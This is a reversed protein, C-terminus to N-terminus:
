HQHGHEVASQTARLDCLGAGFEVSGRRVVATHYDRRELLDLVAERVEIMVIVGGFLLFGGDVSRLARQIERHREVLLASGIVQGDHGRLGSQKLCLELVQIEVRELQARADIEDSREAAPPLIRMAKGRSLRAAAIISPM